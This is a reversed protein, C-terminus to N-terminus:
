RQVLFIWHSLAEAFQSVLLQPINLFTIWHHSYAQVRQRKWWFCGYTPSLCRRGVDALDVLDV